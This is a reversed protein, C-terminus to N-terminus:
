LWTATAMAMATAMATEVTAVAMEATTATRALAFSLFRLAVGQERARRGPTRSLVAQLARDAHLPLCAIVIIAILFWLNLFVSLCGVPNPIAHM